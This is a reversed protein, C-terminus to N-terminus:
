ADGRALHDAQVAATVAANLRNIADQPATTLVGDAYLIVEALDSRNVTVSAETRGEAASERGEGAGHGGTPGHPGSPRTNPQQDGGPARAAIRQVEALYWAEFAENPFEIRGDDNVTAGAGIARKAAAIVQVADRAIRVAPEAETAPAGLRMATERDKRNM